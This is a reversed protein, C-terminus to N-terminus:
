GRIIAPLDRLRPTKGALLSQMRFLRGALWLMGLVSLALIGLSLMIELPSVPAIVLRMLMALPATMPFMSMVVPITSNPAEAFVTFAYYPLFLLITFVAAYQPGERSSNSIAGIGGYIAAMLLYGLIFYVLMIPLLQLPINVSLLFQMASFASSASSLRAFIFAYTAWVIMQVLGLTGYALIKGTLLATPRVSTILIEILRSEKEEIISQMLYGNTMLITTIFVLSFAILIASDAGDTKPQSSKQLNSEQAKNLPDQLRRLLDVDANPAFTNYVLAQVPTEANDGMLNMSFRPSHQVVAGTELYDAQVIYFVDIEKATLAATAAEETPYKVINAQLKDPIQAFHGSLDVLGAKKIADFDFAPMNIPLGSVNTTSTRAQILNYGTSLVFLLIPLGFTTLLFGRRRLNRWVEYLYVQVIHRGM